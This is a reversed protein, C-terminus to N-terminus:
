SYQQRHPFKEISAYEDEEWNDYDDYSDYDITFIKTYGRKLLEEDIFDSNFGKNECLAVIEAIDAADVGNLEMEFVVDSVKM